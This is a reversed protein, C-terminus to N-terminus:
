TERESYNISGQNSLTNRAAGVGLVNIQIINKRSDTEPPDTRGTREVAAGM